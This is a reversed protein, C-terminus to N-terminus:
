LNTEAWVRIAKWVDAEAFTATVKQPTTMANWAVTNKARVIVALTALIDKERSTTQAKADLVAADYDAQEQATAARRKTPSTADYRELRPDPCDEGPCAVATYSAPQSNVLAPDGFGKVMWASDSNRAIWTTAM